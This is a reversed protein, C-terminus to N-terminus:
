ATRRGLLLARRDLGSAGNNGAAPEEAPPTMLVALMRRAEAQAQGPLTFSLVPSHLSHARYLGIVEDGGTVFPRKGAPLAIISSKGIAAMDMPVPEVPLVVLNMFWPTLAIGLLADSGFSRFGITAIAVKANYVPLDRMTADIGRFCDVLALVRPHRDADGLPIMTDPTM